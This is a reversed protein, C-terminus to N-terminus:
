TQHKRSRRHPDAVTFADAGGLMTSVCARRALMPNPTDEKQPSERPVISSFDGPSARRALEVRTAPPYSMFAQRVYRAEAGAAAAVSAM